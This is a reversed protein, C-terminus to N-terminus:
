SSVVGPQRTRTSWSSSVVHRRAAQGFPNPRSADLPEVPADPMDILLLMPSTLPISEPAIM